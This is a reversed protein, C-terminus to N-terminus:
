NYFKNWFYVSDEPSRKEILKVAEHIAYMRKEESARLAKNLEHKKEALRVITEEDQQAISKGFINTILNEMNCKM